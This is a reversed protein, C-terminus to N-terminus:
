NPPPFIRFPGCVPRLGPSGAYLFARTLGVLGEGRVEAGLATQCASMVVLDAHLDLNLIDPTQLIGSQPIDPAISWRFCSEPFNPIRRFKVRWPFGSHVFRYRSLVGSTATALSADFDLASFRDSRRFWPCSPRRRAAPPRCGTSSPDAARAGREIEVAAPRAHPTGAAVPPAMRPDDASFVPDAFM